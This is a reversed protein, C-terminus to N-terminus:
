DSVQVCVAIERAIDRINQLPRALWPWSGLLNLIILCWVDTKIRRVVRPVTYDGIDYGMERLYKLTL